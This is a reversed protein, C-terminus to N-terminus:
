RKVRRYRDHKLEKIFGRLVSLYLLVIGGLLISFGAIALPSTLLSLLYIVASILLLGAGLAVFFLGWPKAKLQSDIEEWYGDWLEPKPKKLALSDTAKIVREMSELESRWEPHASLIEKFHKEERQSMAGDLYAMMKQEISLEANQLQPEHNGPNPKRKASM